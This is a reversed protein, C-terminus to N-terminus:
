RTADAFLAPEDPFRLSRSQTPLPWAGCNPVFPLKGADIVQPNGFRLQGM